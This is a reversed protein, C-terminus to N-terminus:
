SAIIATSLMSAVRTFPMTIPSSRPVTGSKTRLTSARCPSSPVVTSHNARTSSEGLAPSGYAIGCVYRVYESEDTM